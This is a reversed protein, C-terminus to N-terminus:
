LMFFSLKKDYFVIFIIQDQVMVTRVRARLGLILQARQRFNLLEPVTETVMTVFDELMGYHKVQRQETVQWMAASLLRLPPVTFRMLSLPDSFIVVNPCTIFLCCILKLKNVNFVLLRSIFSYELMTSMNYSKNKCVFSVSSLLIAFASDNIFIYVTAQWQRARGHFGSWVSNVRHQWRTKPWNKTNSKVFFSFFLRSICM